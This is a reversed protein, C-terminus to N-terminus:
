ASRRRRVSTPWLRRTPESSSPMGSVTVFTERTRTASSGSNHVSMQKSTAASRAAPRASATLQTNSRSPPPVAVEPRVLLHEHDKAIADDPVPATVARGAQLDLVVRAAHSNRLGLEVPGAGRGAMDKVMASNAWGMVDMVAREPVGLLLLTQQRPQARMMCSRAERM